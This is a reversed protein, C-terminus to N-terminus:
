IFVIQIEDDIHTQEVNVHLIEQNELTTVRLVRSVTTVVMEGPPVGQPHLFIRTNKKMQGEKGIMRRFFISEHTLIWMAGM